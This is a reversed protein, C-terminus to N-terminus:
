YKSYRKNLEFIKRNVKQLAYDFAWDLADETVGGAFMFPYIDEEKLHITARYEVFPRGLSMAPGSKIYCPQVLYVDIGKDNAISFYKNIDEAFTDENSEYKRYVKAVVLQELPKPDERFKVETNPDPYPPCAHPNLYIEPQITRVYITPESLVTTTGKRM